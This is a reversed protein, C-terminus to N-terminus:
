HMFQGAFFAPIQPEDNMEGNVILTINMNELQAHM